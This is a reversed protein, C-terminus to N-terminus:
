LPRRRFLSGSNADANLAPPLPYSHAVIPLFVILLPRVTAPSHSLGATKAARLQGAGAGNPSREGEAPSPCLFLLFM